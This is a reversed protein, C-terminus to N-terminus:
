FDLPSRLCPTVQRGGALVLRESDAPRRTMAFPRGGGLLYTRREPPQPAFSTCFSAKPVEFAKLAANVKGTTAKGLAKVLSQYAALQKNIDARSHDLKKGPTIRAGLM